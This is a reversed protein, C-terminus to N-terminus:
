GSALGTFFLCSTRNGDDPCQLQGTCVWQSADPLRLVGISTNQKNSSWPRTKNQKTTHLSILFLVRFYTKLQHVTVAYFTQREAGHQVDARLLLLTNSTGAAAQQLVLREKSVGQGLLYNMVKLLNLVAKSTGHSSTNYCLWFVPTQCWSAKEGLCIYRRELPVTSKM